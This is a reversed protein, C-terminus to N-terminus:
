PRRRMKLAMRLGYGFFGGFASVALGILYFQILFMYFLGSAEVASSSFNEPGLAVYAVIGPVVLCTMIRLIAKPLLAGALFALVSDAVIQPALNLCM